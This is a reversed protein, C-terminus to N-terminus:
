AETKVFKAYTTPQYGAALATETIHRIQAKLPDFSLDNPHLSLRIVNNTKLLHASLYKNWRLSVDRRWPARTSYCLSQTKTTTATRLNKIHKLRVTYTFNLRKLIADQAEPMLWAPAIFGAAPWNCEEWLALARTLRHRVEGDGLDFFEAENATYIKTWFFSDDGVGVRDHYYGHIALDDGAALRTDLYSRAPADERINKRHHFHPTVLISFNSVGLPTLFDIQERIAPLSAPHFDHLSVILHKM